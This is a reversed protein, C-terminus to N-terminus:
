QERRYIYVFSDDEKEVSYNKYGLEEAIKSILESTIEESDHAKVSAHDKSVLVSFANNVFFADIFGYKMLMAKGIIGGNFHGLDRSIKFNQM